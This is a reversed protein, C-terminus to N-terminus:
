QAIPYDVTQFGSMPSVEHHLFVYYASSQSLNPDSYIIRHQAPSEQALMTSKVEPNPHSLLLGAGMLSILLSAAIGWFQWSGYLSVVKDSVPSCEVNESEIAKMVQASLDVVPADPERLVEGIVHYTNWVEASSDDVVWNALIKQEMDFDLEGDMWASLQEIDM